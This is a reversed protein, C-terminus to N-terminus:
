LCHIAIHTRLLVVIVICNKEPLIKVLLTLDICNKPLFQTVVHCWCYKKVYHFGCYLMLPIKLRFQVWSHFMQVLETIIEDPSACISFFKLELLALIVNSFGLDKFFYASNVRETRTEYIWIICHTWVGWCFCSLINWFTKFYWYLVLM